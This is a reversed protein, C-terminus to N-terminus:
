KSTDVVTITINKAEVEMKEKVIEEIRTIETANIPKSM